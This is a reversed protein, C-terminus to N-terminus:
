VMYEYVKEIHSLFVFNFLNKKQEYAYTTHVIFRSVGKTPSNCVIFPVLCDASMVENEEVMVM